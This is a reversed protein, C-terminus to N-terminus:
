SAKRARRAEWGAGVPISLAEDVSWGRALRASVLDKDLGVRESWEVLCLTESHFTLMRNSRRNRNQQQSTAWRWNPTATRSICDNCKGCDYGRDNDVRDLSAGKFPPEGIDAAFARLDSRWRSCIRLGRGGYDKFHPDSESECREIM